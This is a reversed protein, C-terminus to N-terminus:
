CDHKVSLYASFSVYQGVPRHGEADVFKGDVRLKEVEQLGLSYSWLDTERLAWRHTMVLSELGARMEALRDFIPKLAPAVHFSDQRARIEECIDFCEELLSSCLAQSKPM